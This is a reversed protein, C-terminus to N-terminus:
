NQKSLQREEYQKHHFHQLSSLTEASFKKYPGISKVDSHRSLTTVVDIPIGAAIADTIAGARICHSSVLNSDIGCEESLQKILNNVESGTPCSGDSLQFLPASPQQRGKLRRMAMLEHVACIQPCRCCMVVRERRRTQNMKSSRFNYVIRDDNFESINSWTPRAKARQGYAYESIRLMGGYAFALMARATQEDPSKTSLRSMIRNLVGGSTGIALKDKQGSPRLRKFARKMLFLTPMATRDTRLSIGMQIHVARINDIRNDFSRGCIEENLFVHACYLM